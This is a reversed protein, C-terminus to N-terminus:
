WLAMERKGWVQINLTSCNKIDINQRCTVRQASNFVWVGQANANKYYWINILEQLFGLDIHM